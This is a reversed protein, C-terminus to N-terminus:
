CEEGELFVLSAAGAGRFLVAFISVDPVRVDGAHEGVEGFGQTLTM